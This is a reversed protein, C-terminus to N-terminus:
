RGVPTGLIHMALERRLGIRCGAVRVILNGTNQVVAVLAGERLGLDRLRQAAEGSIVNLLINTGDGFTTLPAPHYSAMLDGRGHTAPQLILVTEYDSNLSLIFLLDM